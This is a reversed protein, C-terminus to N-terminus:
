SRGIGQGWLSNGMLWASGARQFGEATGHVAGAAGERWLLQAELLQSGRREEKQEM